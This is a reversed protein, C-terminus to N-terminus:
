LKITLILHGSKLILVKLEDSSFWSLLEQLYPFISFAISNYNIEFCWNDPLHKNKRPKM